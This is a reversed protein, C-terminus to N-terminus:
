ELMEEGETVEKLNMLELLGHGKTESHVIEDVERYHGPDILCVQFLILVHIYLRKKEETHWKAQSICQSTIDGSIQLGPLILSCM